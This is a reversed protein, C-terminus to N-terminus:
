YVTSIVVVVVVVVVVVKNKFKPNTTKHMKLYEFLFMWGSAVIL